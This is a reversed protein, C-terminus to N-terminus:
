DDGIHAWIVGRAIGSVTHYSVGFEAALAGNTEGAKRRRKIERVQAETLKAAPNKEGTLLTGHKLRDAANGKRTDWRLNTLRNDARDNNEHCCEMDPQPPDGVFLTLVLKHVTVTWRRTGNCLVLYRYGDDNTGGALEHWNDSPVGGVGPVFETRSWVSGDDGVRYAPFDPVSKYSVHARTPQDLM